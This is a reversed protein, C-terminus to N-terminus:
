PRTDLPAQPVLAKAAAMVLEDPVDDALRFGVLDAAGTVTSLEDGCSPCAVFTAAAAPSFRLRCSSCCIRTM